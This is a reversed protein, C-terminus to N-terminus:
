VYGSIKFYNHIKNKFMNVSTVNVCEGPLQQLNTQSSCSFSWNTLRRLNLSLIILVAHEFLYSVVPGFPMRRFQFLGGPTSFVTKYIDSHNMAIQWYGKSCNVKSFFVDRNLSSFIQEPNSMPEADFIPM